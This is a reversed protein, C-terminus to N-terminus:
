VPRAPTGDMNIPAGKWTEWEYPLDAYQSQSSQISPGPQPALDPTPASFRNSTSSSDNEALAPVDSPLTPEAPRGAYSSIFTPFYNPRDPQQAEVSKGTAPARRRRLASSPRSIFL